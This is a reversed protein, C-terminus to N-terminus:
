LNEHVPFVTSIVHSHLITKSHPIYLQLTSHVDSNLVNHIFSLVLRDGRRPLPVPSSMRYLVDVIILAIQNALAVITRTTLNKDQSIGRLFKSKTTYTNPKSSKTV